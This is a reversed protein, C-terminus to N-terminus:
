ARLGRSTAFLETCATSFSRLDLRQCADRRLLHLVPRKFAGLQQAHRTSLGGEWPLLLDGKLM